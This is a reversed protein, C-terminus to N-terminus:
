KKDKQMPCSEPMKQMNVGLKKLASKAACGEICSQNTHTIEVSLYNVSDEVLPKNAAVPKSDLHNAFKDRTARLTEIEACSPTCDMTHMKKGTADWCCCRGCEPNLSDNKPASRPAPTTTAIAMAAFALVSVLAVIKKM